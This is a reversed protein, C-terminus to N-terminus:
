GKERILFFIKILPNSALCFAGGGKTGRHCCPSGLSEVALLGGATSSCALKGKQLYVWDRSKWNGWQIWITSSLNSFEFPQFPINGWWLHQIKVGGRMGEERELRRGRSHLITSGSPWVIHCNILINFMFNGYLGTTGSRPIEGPFFSFVQECLLKYLFIQLIIVWLLGLTSIVGIHM